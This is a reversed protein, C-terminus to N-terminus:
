GIDRRRFGALAVATLALAVATLWLLPEVSFAGGPLKSMHTFPSVDLVSQSLKLAPGVVGILGCFAVAAWGAPASWRPALGIVAAGVAAVCLAAPWQAIAAGILRPLQTGT